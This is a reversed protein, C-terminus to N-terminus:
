IKLKRSFRQRSLNKERYCDTKLSQLFFSSVLTYFIFLFFDFKM